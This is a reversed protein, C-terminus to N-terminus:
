IFRDEVGELRNIARHLEVTYDEKSAGEPARCGTVDVIAEEIGGLLDWLLYIGLHETQHDVLQDAEKVPLGQDHLSAVRFRDFAAVRGALSVTDALHMAAEKLLSAALRDLQPSTTAELAEETATRIATELTETTM